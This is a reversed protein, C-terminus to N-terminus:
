RVDELAEIAALLRRMRRGLQVGGTHSDAEGQCFAQDACLAAREGRVVHRVRLAVHRSGGEVHDEELGDDSNVPGSEAPGPAHALHRM